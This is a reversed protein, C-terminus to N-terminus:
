LLKWNYIPVYSKEIRGHKLDSKHAINSLSARAYVAVNGLPIQEYRRDNMTENVFTRVLTLWQRKSWRNVAFQKYLDHCANTLANKFVDQSNVIDKKLPEQKVDTEESVNLHDPSHEPPHENNIEDLQKEIIYINASMTDNKRKAMNVSLLGLKKMLGFFRRVSSLSISKKFRQEFMHKFTSYAISFVGNGKKALDSILYVCRIQLDSYEWVSKVASIFKQTDYKLKSYKSLEEPKGNLLM